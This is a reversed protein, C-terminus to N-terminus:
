DESTAAAEALSSAGVLDLLLGKTYPYRDDWDALEEVSATKVINSSFISLRKKEWEDNFDLRPKDPNRQAVIENLFSLMNANVYSPADRLSMTKSTITKYKRERLMLNMARRIVEPYIWDEIEFELHKSM